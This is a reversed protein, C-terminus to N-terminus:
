NLIRGIRKLFDKNEGIDNHLQGKLTFLKDGKKLLTILRLSSNYPIVEDKDGHFITIPMTCKIIYKNTELKYKLLFSPVIPYENYMMDVMSFYPTQLILKRPKNNSALYAAIGSGMSYGLIVIDKEKYRKKLKDYATQVDSFLTNQASIEGESKGFGRYDLMFIDYGLDTYTKASKGCSQLCGANGHLYFVLGKSKESKFLVGSLKTGDKAKITMEEFDDDFKFTHSTELKEPFFLFSEQFFYMYSCGIIYLGIVAILLRLAIKKLQKTNM